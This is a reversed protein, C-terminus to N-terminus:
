EIGVEKRYQDWLAIEEEPWQVMKVDSGWNRTFFENARDWREVQRTLHPRLYPYLTLLGSTSVEIHTCGKAEGASITNARKDLHESFAVSLDDLTTRIKALIEVNSNYLMLKTAPTKKGTAQNVWTLSLSGEGDFIGALWICSDRIGPSLPLPSIATMMKKVMGRGIGPVALLEAETVTWAIPVRGFHEIVLRAKAPGLGPVSQVVHAAFDADTAKGWGSATSSPKPRRRLSDHNAKEAWSKLSEIAAVTDYVNDTHEVWIGREAVSRLLNRHQLRTWHHYRDLLVGDTSWNPTGEIMLVGISIPSTEMQTIEMGLRGDAVSSLLDSMEKRQIGVLGHRAVTFLVDCGNREPVASVVGLAKIIDPETPAVLYM